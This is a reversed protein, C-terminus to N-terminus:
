SKLISLCKKLLRNKNRYFQFYTSFISKNTEIANEIEEYAYECQFLAQLCNSDVKLHPFKRNLLILPSILYKYSYYYHNKTADLNQWALWIKKEEQFYEIWIPDNNAEEGSDSNYRKEIYYKRLDGLSTNYNLLREDFNKAFDELHDYIKTEFYKLETLADWIKHFAKYKINQTFFNWFFKKRFSYFIEKFGFEFITDLHIISKQSYSFGKEYTVDIQDKLEQVNKEKIKLDVIVYELLLFFTKRITKRDYSINFQSFLFNILGGLIFVIISILTPVSVENSIGLTDNIWKIM